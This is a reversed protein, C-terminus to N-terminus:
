EMFIHKHMYIGLYLGSLGYVLVQIFTKILSWKGSFSWNTHEATPFFVEGAGTKGWNGTAIQTPQLNHTKGYVSAHGNTDDKNLEHESLWIPSVESM